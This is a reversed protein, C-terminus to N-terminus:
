KEGDEDEILFIDLSEIASKIEIFISGVEDDAEFSGRIDVEKIAALVKELRSKMEEFFADYSEKNRLANKIGVVCVGNFILSLTLLFVTIM